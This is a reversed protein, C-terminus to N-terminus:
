QHVQLLTVTHCSALAVSMHGQPLLMPDPVLQSFGGPGTKMVGWVDLGEETLTGTKDFCFVSVKGCINIRPPSICFIGREKLRNQAYITGTTIAAPLAPPVVITVVDLARIILEGWTVGLVLLFKMADKNFRFDTDQSYLISSILDGKAIFF